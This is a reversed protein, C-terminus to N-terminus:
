HYKYYYAWRHARMAVKGIPTTSMVYSRPNFRRRQRKNVFRRMRHDRQELDGLWLMLDRAEQWSERAEICHGNSAREKYVTIFWTM